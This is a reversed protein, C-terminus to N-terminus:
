GDVEMAVGPRLAALARHIRQRAAGASCGLVRAVEDIPLDLQYYLSLALLHHKPLRDLAADLDIRDAWAGESAAAPEPAGADDFRIVQWWRSRRATRCENAVIALFWPRLDAGYRFRDLKRWSKLAAEQVADEAASRDQLMTMALRFGPDLVPELLEAFASGDGARARRLRDATSGDESVMEM